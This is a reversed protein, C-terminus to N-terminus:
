AVVSDAVELFRVSFVMGSLSTLDVVGNYAATNPSTKNARGFFPIRTGRWAAPIAREEHLVWNTRQTNNSGSADWQLAQTSTPPSPIGASPGYSVWYQGYGANPFYRVGLWEMRIQMRTAWEPVDAHYAGTNDQGGHNPFWEGAPFAARSNLVLGADGTVTARPFVLEKVRPNAIERLDTIMSQSVTATSAPLTVKALAIAPYGLNLQAATVTGTPVGQVVEVRAYDFDTPDVPPQGEYQPDLVRAVILDTRGGGSGTATIDVSTQTANRAVYSQQGGGAYRNLLLAAGPLVRVSAGPVSQAHVRMDTVGVIGEAGSTGAYALLRAVEPSHQAGNGVFWPTRDMAM